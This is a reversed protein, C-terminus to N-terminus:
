INTLHCLKITSVLVACRLAAVLVKESSGSRSDDVREVELVGDM